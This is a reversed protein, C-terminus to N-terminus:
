VVLLMFGRADRRAEVVEADVASGGSAVAAAGSSATMSVQFFVPVFWGSFRQKAEELRLLRRSRSPRVLISAAGTTKGANGVLRQAESIHGM